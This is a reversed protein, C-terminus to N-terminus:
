QLQVAGPCFSFGLNKGSYFQNVNYAVGVYTTLSCLQQQSIQLTNLLYQEAETRSKAIPEKLLAVAFSGNHANFVVNFDASLAQNIDTVNYQNAGLYTATSVTAPNVLTVTGSTTEITVQPATGQNSAPATSTGNTSASPHNTYSTPKVQYGLNPLFAWVAIGLTGVVGVVIAIFLVNPKKFM